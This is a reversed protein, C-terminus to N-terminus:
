LGALGVYVQFRTEALDRTDRDRATMAPGSLERYLSVLPRVIRAMLGEKQPLTPAAAAAALIAAVEEEVRAIEERTLLGVQSEALQREDTATTKEPITRTAMTETNFGRQIKRHGAQRIMPSSRRSEYYQRDTIM